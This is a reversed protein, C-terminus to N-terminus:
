GVPLVIGTRAAAELSATASPALSSRPLILRQQLGVSFLALPTLTTASACLDCAAVPLPDGALALAIGAMLALFAPFLAIQRVIRWPRM